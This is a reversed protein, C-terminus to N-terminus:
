EQWVQIKRYLTSPSVGLASAAQVVNGDCQSIAHEIVQREVTALPIIKGSAAPELQQGGPPLAEQAEVTAAVRAATDARAVSLQNTRQPDLKLQKALITSGMLPGDSMIVASHILNQLQRVNGPWDYNQLLAEADQSFGVFEKEELESFHTLFQKAILVADAERENLPPMDISIVNLRYYLDERLNGQEVSAQPDRNTACVFRINAKEGKDSGVKKFEGTQVFRLLKAQLGIDMEGLEDLFLTGGDALKAAGDRNSVAGSFAGKVHGFMESEMLDSPIAACNLAIFPQKARKSLRHIANAAVEKGTGSPGTIFVSANSPASKEIAKYVFQMAVSEGIFGQFSPRQRKQYRDLTKRLISREALVEQAQIAQQVLIKLENNDWPKHLYSWVKGQNIAVLVKELDTHATLIIRITEPYVRAVEACLQNGDMGPMSLDTILIDVPHLQLAQLAEEGSNAVRIDLGPDRLVRRLAGTVSTEDDVLLLRVM